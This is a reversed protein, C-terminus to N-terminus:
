ERVVEIRIEIQAGLENFVSLDSTIRGMRILGSQRSEGDKAFFIAFSPGAPYYTVDGNTYNDIQEGEESLTGIRGYYERNDYRNMTIVRPLTALFETTTRSNIVTVRIATDGATLLIDTTEAPSGNGNDGEDPPVIEEPLDSGVTGNDDGCATMPVVLLASILIMYVRKM